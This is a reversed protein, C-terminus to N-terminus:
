LPTVAIRMRSLWIQLALHQHSAADRRHQQAPCRPYRPYSCADVPCWVGKPDQTKWGTVRPSFNLITTWAWALTRTQARKGAAHSLLSTRCTLHLLHMKLRLDTQSIIPRLPRLGLYTSLSRWALSCTPCHTHQSSPRAAELM